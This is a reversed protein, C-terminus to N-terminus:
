IEVETSLFVPGEKCIRKNHVNTHHDKEKSKCVCALCAGIGCAMKEELSIQPLVEIGRDAALKELRTVTKDAFAFLEQAKSNEKNETTVTVIVEDCLELLVGIVNEQIPTFGTFGDFVFPLVNALILQVGAILMGTLNFKVFQWITNGEFRKDLKGIWKM